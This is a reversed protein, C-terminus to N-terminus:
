RCRSAFTTARLFRLDRKAHRRYDAQTDVGKALIAAKKGHMHELMERREGPQTRGFDVKVYDALEVAAQTAASGQFRGARVPFGSSQAAPM